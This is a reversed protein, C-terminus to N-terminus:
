RQAKPNFLRVGAFLGRGETHYGFVDQYHRNLLNSGRAFIEIGPRVAYGVRAAALWYSALHVTEFPFTNFNTDTQTGVYALSAGYTLRHALGDISISGSHRPRRIEEVQVGSDDPQTAHLYAYNAALRLNHALRWGAEVEIGSRHSVGTANVSSTFDANAVIENKLRQRYGTLAADFAGRRYRLSGEYGRSTEPKLSPNGVFTGPFFGYLETFTPQSIGEGYSGSVVFGGGLPALLSARLTTADQFESFFDHRVAIDAIIGRAHGKWEGTLAEHIRRKDQNTLGGFETDRARFSEKEYDAAAILENKVGAVDFAYQLQGSVTRRLGSTENIPQGDFLNHNHAGFLSASVSGSLGDQASGFTTWVRGAAIGFRTALNETPAFTFPNSGAFESYGNLSFGNIGVKVGPAITWSALARGSFNRYGDPRGGTGTEDIGTARQWGFAGALQMNGSVASAAASAREFGFSGAEASAHYDSADAPAGTVAIVGGIAQSGWLASQPGRVVEIRSAVDANLLEFRPEDGASLDNADIGDIFLLTHNAEAGRIRVQTITGAPGSSSVAASPVERLFDYVLPDGLRAIADQDIVTVSAATEDQREPVRSATIIITDPQDVLGSVDAAVVLFLAIM